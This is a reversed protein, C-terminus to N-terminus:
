APRPPLPPASTGDVPTPTRGVRVGLQAKRGPPWQGHGCCPERLRAQAVARSTLAPQGEGEAWCNDKETELM